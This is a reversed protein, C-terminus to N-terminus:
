LKYRDLMQKEIAKDLQARNLKGQQMLIEGVRTRNFGNKKQQLDLATELDAQGIYGLEILYAGLKKHGEPARDSNLLNNEYLESMARVEDTLLRLGAPLATAPTVHEFSPFSCLLRCVIWAFENDINARKDLMQGIARDLVLALRCLPHDSPFYEITQALMERSQVLAKRHRPTLAVTGDPFDFRDERVLQRIRDCLTSFM